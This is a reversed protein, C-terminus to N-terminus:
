LRSRTARECESTRAVYDGIIAGQTLPCSNRAPMTVVTGTQRRRARAGHSPAGVVRGLPLEDSGGGSRWSRRARRGGLELFRAMRRRAATTPLSGGGRPARRRDAAGGREGRAQRAPDGRGPLVRDPLRAARRFPLARAAPPYPEPLGLTRGSGRRPTLVSRAPGSAHYRQPATARVCRSTASDSCRTERAM